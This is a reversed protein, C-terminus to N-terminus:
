SRSGPWWCASPPSCCCGRGLWARSGPSPQFAPRLLARIGAPQHLGMRARALGVLFMPLLVLTVLGHWSDLYGTGLYSLFSVFGLGGGIALLWWAWARGQALPFQTLWLYLVGIAVLTGGFAARDHGMFHLLRGDAITRLQQESISLWALDHPLLQDTIALFWAFLGAALLGLATVTLLGRGNGGWAALLGRDEAGREGQPPLESVM